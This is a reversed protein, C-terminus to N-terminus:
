SKRKNKRTVAKDVTVWHIDDVSSLLGHKIMESLSCPKYNIAEACFNHYTKGDVIYIFPKDHTHGHLNVLYEPCPIIPEHSLIIKDSIMLPGSYVEDFLHNDLDFENIKKTLLEITAPTDLKGDKTKPLNEFKIKEINDVIFKQFEKNHNVCHTLTGLVKNTIPDIIRFEGPLFELPEKIYYKRKYYGAGRDHNGLLLVKYGAKLKKVKEIDGVDGLIILTDNKSVVKNISQIQYYDLVEISDVNEPLKGNAKRFEFSERDGFHPDSYIYVSGKASWSKFIDYLSNIM